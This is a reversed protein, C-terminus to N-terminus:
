RGGQNASKNATISGGNMIFEGEYILAGGGGYNSVAYNGTIDGGNMTVTGQYVYIGGGGQSAADNDRIVGGNMTFSSGSGISVGAGSGSSENNQLIAGDNLTFQGSSSVSVLARTATIGTNTGSSDTTWVAGGDLILSGTNEAGLVLQGGEQVIFFASGFGQARKMTATEGSPTSLVVTRREIVISEYMMIDKEVTIYGTQGTNVSAIAAALEAQTRIIGSTDGPTLSLSFAGTYTKGNLTLRINVTYQGVPIAPTFTYTTGGTQAELEQRIGSASTINGNWVAGSVDVTGPNQVTVSVPEDVTKSVANGAFSLISYVPDLSCTIFPQTALILYGDTDIKWELTDSGDQQATVAFKAINAAITTDADATLKLVQVQNGPYAEPTITAVTGTGTLQGGIQIQAGSTLYVENDGDVQASGKMSFVTDEYSDSASAYVGTGYKWTSNPITNGSISANGSMTFQAGERVYVGGGYGGATDPITNGTISGGSMTFIGYNNPSASADVYVGAGKGHSGYGSSYMAKNDNISGDIMYFAAGPAVFVGGGYGPEDAASGASNTSITGGNLTFVSGTAVAVGGGASVGGTGSTGIYYATENGGTLTINAGLTVDANSIYLVRASSNANLTGAETESKGEIRIPPVNDYMDSSDETIDVM